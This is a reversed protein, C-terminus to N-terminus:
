IKLYVTIPLFTPGLPDSLDVKAWKKVKICYELFINSLKDMNKLSAEWYPYHIITLIHIQKIRELPWKDPDSIVFFTKNQTKDLIHLLQKNAYLKRTIINM